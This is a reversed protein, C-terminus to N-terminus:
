AEILGRTNGASSATKSAVRVARWRPAEILGRTNGASSM